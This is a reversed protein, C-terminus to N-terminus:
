RRKLDSFTTPPTTLVGTEHEPPGPKLDQGPSWSDISPNRHNEETRGPSHQFLVMFNPWLRKRGYGKWNMM